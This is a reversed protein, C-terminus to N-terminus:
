GVPLNRQLFAEPLIDGVTKKKVASQYAKLADPNSQLVENLKAFFPRLGPFKQAESWDGSRLAKNRVQDQLKQRQVEYKFAVQPVNVTRWPAPLGSATRLMSMAAEPNAELMGQFENNRGILATILKTQPIINGVLSSLFNPNNAKLTGTNADISMDPYLDQSGKSPDIGMTKLATAIVPNARGTLGAMTFMSAVDQFPNLAGPNFAKVNGKEDPHGLFFMKAFDLPLWTGADERENRAISSMVATRFPHDFPYRMAYQMIFKSFSYFPFVSRVINREFGTMRDWEPLVKRVLSVGAARAADASMGKTLGKDHAYLYATARYFDDVVQNMRYSRDAVRKLFGTVHQGYGAAEDAMRAMTRGARDGHIARIIDKPKAHTMLDEMQGYLGAGGPPLGEIGAHEYEKAFERIKKWNNLMYLLARPEEVGLLMLGGIINNLHFKPSYALVSTRFINMLPDLLGTIRWPPRFLDQAAIDIAHPVYLADSPTNAAVRSGPFTDTPKYEKYAKSSLREAWQGESFRPDHRHMAEALPRYEDLVANKDKAFMRQYETVFEEQVLRTLAESAQHSVGISADRLYPAANFTREQAQSLKRLSDTIRPRTIEYTKDPHVRHIYLPRYGQEAMQGVTRSIDRQYERLLQPTLGAVSSYFGKEIDAVAAPDDSFHEVLKDKVMQEIKSGYRAAPTRTKVREATAQLRAIRADNYQETRKLFKQAERKSVLVRQIEDANPHVHETRAGISRNWQRAAAQYDDNRALVDVKSYSTGPGGQEAKVNPRMAEEAATDSWIPREVPNANVDRIANAINEKTSGAANAADRIATGDFGSRDYLYALGQATHQAAKATVREDLILAPDYQPHVGPQAAGIRNRVDNVTSFSHARNAAKTIRNADATTYFDANAGEGLQTLGWGLPAVYRGIAFAHEDAKQLFGRERDTLNADELIGRHQVGDNDTYGQLPELEARASLETRRPEPIHDVHAPDRYKRMDFLADRLPQIDGTLAASSIPTDEAMQLGLKQQFMSLLQNVNRGQSGFKAAMHRMFPMDALAQYTPSTQFALRVNSPQKVTPAKVGMVDALEGQMTAAEAAKAAGAQVRAEIAPFRMVARNALNAVPAKAYPLIDLGSYVPHELLAQPGGQAVTSATYVGPVMRLGPVEQLGAIVDRIDGRGLVESLKQPAEPLEKAEGVLGTVIHPIDVLSKIDSLARGFFGEKPAPTAQIHQTASKLAGLTQTGTLPMQGKQARALDYDVFSSRIYSPISGLATQLGPDSYKRQLSQQVKPLQSYVVPHSAGGGLLGSLPGPLSISPLSPLSFDTLSM